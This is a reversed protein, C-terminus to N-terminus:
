SKHRRPQSPLDWSRYRHVEVQNRDRIKYRHMQTCTHALSPLHRSRCVQRCWNCLRGSSLGLCTRRCCRITQPHSCRRRSFPPIDSHCTHQDGECRCKHHLIPPGGRRCAKKGGPSCGRTRSSGLCHLQWSRCRGTLSSLPTKCCTCGMSSTGWGPRSHKCGVWHTSRSWAPSRDQPSTCCCQGWGSDWAATWCSKRLKQIIKRQCNM